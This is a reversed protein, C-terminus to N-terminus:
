SAASIATLRNHKPLVLRIRFLGLFERDPCQAPGMVLVHRGHMLGGDKREREKEKECLRQSFGQRENVMYVQIKKKKKKWKTTFQLVPLQLVPSKQGGEIGENINLVRGCM